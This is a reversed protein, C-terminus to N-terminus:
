SGMGPVYVGLWHEVVLWGVLPIGAALGALPAWRREGMVLLAALLLAGLPVWLGFAPLAATFVGTLVVLISAQASQHPHRAGPPPAFLLRLLVLIMLGAYLTPLTRSNVLEQASWPDLPIQRALVLYAVTAALLILILLRYGM